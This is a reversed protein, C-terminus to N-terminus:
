PHPHLSNTKVRQSNLLEIFQDRKKPSVLYSRKKTKISVRRLSLAPASLLSSSKEVSEISELPIQYCLVGCRISLADTLITYRCPATFMATVLLCGAGILFVVSADGPQGQFFLVLGLAISLGPALMLLVALWLDIASDFRIPLKTHKEPENM